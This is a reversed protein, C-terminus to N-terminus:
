FGAPQSRHGRALEYFRPEVGGCVARAGCFCGIANYIDLGINYAIARKAKSHSTLPTSRTAPLACVIQRPLPDKLVRQIESNLGTKSFCQINSDESPSEAVLSPLEQHKVLTAACTEARCPGSRLQDALESRRRHLKPNLVM